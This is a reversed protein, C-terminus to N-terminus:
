QVRTWVQSRCIGVVCGSVKLSNGTLTMKSNYTKDRDPAWIKGKGYNGGGLPQMDWIIQRGLTPADTVRNGSSDFAQALTGCLAQGCPAIDVVGVAGGDDPQTKWLGAVPDADAMSAMLLSAGILTARM